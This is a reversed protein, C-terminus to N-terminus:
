GYVVFSKKVIKEESQKELFMKLNMCFDIGNQMFERSNKRQRESSM